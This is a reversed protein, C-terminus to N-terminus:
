SFISLMKKIIEFKAFDHFTVLVMLLLLAIFGATHLMQEFRRNVPSGKLVEIIVFFIRGGDLAPIPLINIIGLNISLLAAFQLVSSLGMESVQKTLYAIGVPGAIDAPAGQLTVLSVIMGGFAALIAGTLNFTTVLGKWPAAYWPYQVVSVQAMQIGLAGENKPYEKRPTGRLEVIEKGRKIQLSIEKGKNKGIVDQLEKTMKIPRMPGDQSRVSIVEDGMKLMMAEAPSNPLVGSIVVSAGEKAAQEDSIEERAGVMFVVSLLVWALVFNMFVGAALVELRSLPSKSAFSDSDERGSGDEGKIRVFGGLPIWNISYITHESRVDKNGFVFRWRGKEEDWIIGGFRPPFGFGFEDVKMGNRRASTFHGWEHVFVLVSLIILFLIITAIM